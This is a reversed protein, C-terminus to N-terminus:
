YAFAERMQEKYQEPNDGEMSLRFDALAEQFRLRTAEAESETMGFALAEAEFEATKDEILLIWLYHQLSDKKNNRVYAEKFDEKAEEFSSTYFHAIGQNHIMDGYEEPTFNVAFSGHLLKRYERLSKGYRKARLYNDAKMKKKRFVPLNTIEDLIHIMHRIESEKYYDCACLIAVTLDKLGHEEEMMYLLKDALESLGLEDRVWTALSPQFFEENISYINNYIYYCLEEISYVEQGTFPMKYPINTMTGKALILM